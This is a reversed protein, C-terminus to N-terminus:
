RRPPGFLFRVADQADAPATVRLEVESGDAAVAFSFFPCCEQEAAVLRRVRREHEPAFAYRAGGEIEARSAAAALLERWEALRARQGDGSLSCGVLPLPRTV